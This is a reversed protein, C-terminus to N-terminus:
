EQVPNPNARISPLQIHTPLALEQAMTLAKIHCRQLVANLLLELIPTQVKKDKKWDKLIDKIKKSDETYLLHGNLIINGINPTYELNFEFTIKLVNDLGEVPLKDQIIDKIGLNNKIEIKEKVDQLKEAQIKDFNFGIIPM